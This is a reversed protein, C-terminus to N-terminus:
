YQAAYFADTSTGTIDIEGSLVTGNVSCYYAQGGSLQVAAGTTSAAVGLGETVYMTHSGYNIITCGKRGPAGPQQPASSFVKQFVGTSAVTGSANGGSTSGPTQVTFVPTQAQGSPALLLLALLLGLGLPKSIM